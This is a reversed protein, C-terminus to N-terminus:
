YYLRIVPSFSVAYRPQWEKPSPYFVGSCRIGFYPSFFYGFSAYFGNLSYGIETEFERYRRSNKNQSNNVGEGSWRFLLLAGAHQKVSTSIPLDPSEPLSIITSGSVQGKNMGIFNGGAILQLAGGSKGMRFFYGCALYSGWLSRYTLAPNQYNVFAPDDTIQFYGGGLIGFAGEQM